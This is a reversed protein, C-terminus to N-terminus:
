PYTVQGTYILWALRNAERLENWQPATSETYADRAARTAADHEVQAANRVMEYADEAESIAKEYAMRAPNVVADLADHAAKVAISHWTMSGATVMVYAATNAAIAAEYADRGVIPLTNSM